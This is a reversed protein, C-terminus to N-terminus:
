SKTKEDTLWWYTNILIWCIYAGSTNSIIDRWTDHSDVSYIGMHLLEFAYEMIENLTGLTSVFIFLLVIMVRWNLKIKYTKVLYAFFIASVAGGGVSHLLVNGLFASSVARSLYEGLLQTSVALLLLKWYKLASYKLKFEYNIWRTLIYIFIIMLFVYM